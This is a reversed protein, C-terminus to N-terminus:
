WPCEWYLKNGFKVRLEKPAYLKQKEMGGYTVINGDMYEVNVWNLKICDVDNNYWANKWAWKGWSINGFELPGTIYGTFTNDEDWRRVRCTMEDGVANYASFNMRVYKITKSTTIWPYVHIDVGGASNPASPYMGTIMIPVGHDRFEEM